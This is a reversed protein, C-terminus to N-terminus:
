RTSPLCFCMSHDRQRGPLLRFYGLCPQMFHSLLHMKLNRINCPKLLRDSSLHMNCGKLILIGLEHTCKFPQVPQSVATRPMSMVGQYERTGSPGAGKGASRELDSDGQFFARLYGM